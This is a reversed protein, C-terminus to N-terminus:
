AHLRSVSYSVEVEKKEFLTGKVVVDPFVKWGSPDAHPGALPGGEAYALQRLESPPKAQSRPLYAISTGLSADIEDISWV